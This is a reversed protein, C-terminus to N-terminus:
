VVVQVEAMLNPVMMEEGSLTVEEQAPEVASAPQVSQISNDAGGESPVTNESSAPAHGTDQGIRTVLREPPLEPGREVALRTMMMDHENEAWMRSKKRGQRTVLSAQRTAALAKIKAMTAHSLQSCCEVNVQELRSETTWDLDKKDVTSEKTSAESSPLPTLIDRSGAAASALVLPGAVPTESLPARELELCRQSPNSHILDSQSSEPMQPQSVTTGTCSSGTSLSSGVAMAYQDCADGDNDDANQRSPIPLPPLLPTCPIPEQVESLARHLLVELNKSPSSSSSSSSSSSASLTSGYSSSMNLYQTTMFSATGDAGYDQDAPRDIYVEKGKPEKSRSQEGEDGYEENDAHMEVDEDKFEGTEEEDEEDVYSFNCHYRQLDLRMDLDMGTAEDMSMSLDMDLAEDLDLNMITRLDMAHAQHHVLGMQSQKKGGDNASHIPTVFQQGHDMNTDMYEDGNEDDGDDKPRMDIGRKRLMEVVRDDDMVGVAEDGLAAGDDAPTLSREASVHHTPASELISTDGNSSVPAPAPAPTQMQSDTLAIAPLPTSLSDLAVPGTPAIIEKIEGLCQCMVQATDESIDTYSVNLYRLMGCDRLVGEIATASFQWHNVDLLEVNRCNLAIQELIDNALDGHVDHCGLTLVRLNLACPRSLMLAVDKAESELIDLRFCDLGSGYDGIAQCTEQNLTDEMGLLVLAKLVGRAAVPTSLGKMVAMLCDTEIDSNSFDLHELTFKCAETLGLVEERFLHMGGPASFKVLKKCAKGLEALRCNQFDHSKLVLSELSEGHLRALTDITRVLEHGQSIERHNEVHVLRLSHQAAVLCSLAHDTVSYSHPFHQLHTAVKLSEIKRCNLSLSMILTDSVVAYRLDLYVLSHTQDKTLPWTALFQRSSSGSSSSSTSARSHLQTSAASYAQQFGYPLPVIENSSSPASPLTTGTSSAAAGAQDNENEAVEPTPLEFLAAINNEASDLHIPESTDSMEAQETGQPTEIVGDVASAQTQAPAPMSTETSMTSQSSEPSFSLAVSDESAADSTPIQVQQESNPDSSSSDTSPSNAVAPHAYPMATAIPQQLPLLPPTTLLSEDPGLMVEDEGVSQTVGQLTDQMTNAWHAQFAASANNFIHATNSIEGEAAVEGVEGVESVTPGQVPPGLGTPEDNITTIIAPTDADAGDLEDEFPNITTTTMHAFLCRPLRPTHCHVFDSLYPRNALLHRILFDKPAENRTWRFGTLTQIDVEPLDFTDHVWKLNVSRAFSAYPFATKSPDMCGQFLTRLLLMSGHKDMIRSETDFQYTFLYTWPHRYLEQLAPQTWNRTTLACNFLDQPQLSLHMFIQIMLDMPLLQNNGHNHRYYGLATQPAM